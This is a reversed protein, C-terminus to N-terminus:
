KWNAIIDTIDELGKNLDIIRVPIGIAAEVEAPTKGDLFVEGTSNLMVSPICILTSGAQEEGDKLAAIIDGGTVLGAVTVTDGFFRNSVTVARAELGAVQNLGDAIGELIGQASKGTVLLLKAAKAIEAPLHKQEMSWSDLLQRVLGIGNELQPFEDYLQSEPVTKGALVYFEDAAYVLSLGHEQRFKVAIGEVLSIVARAKSKDFLELQQLEKRFATVGVPVVAISCVGPYLGTLDRLTRELEVGDNYGPCLVVQTHIEIGAEVLRQLQKLIIGAGRNNLMKTRLEPNTTHVSIYLPSLRLRIIRSLEEDGVNTFTIFNGHLFSMRYDDDKVYLTKRLGPPMQDVFCFVCKNRCSRIGDFTSQEFELGMDEDFEKDVELVWEEGDARLVDIELYEDAIMFRYDILDELQQGNVALLRDGAVLGMEEGISDPLVRSILGGKISM